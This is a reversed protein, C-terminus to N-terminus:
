EVVVRQQKYGKETQLLALYIGKPLQSVDISETTLYTAPKDFTKYFAVKGNVDYVTLVNNDSTIDRMEIHLKNSVPNPFVKLVEAKAIEFGGNYPLVKFTYSSSSDIRYFNTAAARFWVGMYIKIPYEGVATGTSDSEGQLLICGLTGGKWTCSPVNCAYAYGPPVGGIYLVRGSDVTAPVEINQYVVVSDKPVRFTLVQSYYYGAMAFPLKEPYLYAQGIASDPECIPQAISITQLLFLCSIFLVLKKM